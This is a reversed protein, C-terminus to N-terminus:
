SRQIEKRLDAIAEFEEQTLESASQNGAFTVNAHNLYSRFLPSEEFASLAYYPLVRNEKALNIIKNKMLPMQQDLPGRRMYDLTIKKLDNINKIDSFTAEFHSVPRPTTPRSPPTIREEYPASPKPTPPPVPRAVPAIPVPKAVPKPPQIVSPLSAPKTVHAPLEKTAVERKIEDVSINSIPKPAVPKPAPAPKPQVAMRQKLAELDAGHDAVPKASVEALRKEFATPEKASTAVPEPASAFAPTPTNYVSVPQLTDKEEKEIEPVYKPNRLLNYIELVYTLLQQDNPNLAKANPSSYMYQTLEYSEGRTSTPDAYSLYDKLWGGITNRVTEGTKLKITQSGVPEENRTLSSIFKQREEMDPGVGYEFLDLYSSIYSVVDINNKLAFAVNSQLVDQKLKKDMSQLAQWYLRTKVTNLRRYTETGNIQGGYKVLLAELADYFDRAAMPESAYQDDEGMEEIRAIVQEDKVDDVSLNKFESLQLKDLDQLNM